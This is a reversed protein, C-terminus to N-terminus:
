AMNTWLIISPFRPFMYWLWLNWDHIKFEPLLHPLCLLHHWSVTVKVILSLFFCLSSTDIMSHKSFLCWWLSPFLMRGFLLSRNRNDTSMFSSFLIFFFFNKNKWLCFFLLQHLRYFNLLFPPNWKLWFLNKGM